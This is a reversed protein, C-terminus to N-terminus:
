RRKQQYGSEIAKQTRLMVMYGEVTTPELKSRKHKPVHVYSKSGFIKIHNLIPVRGTWLENPTKGNLACHITRNKLYTIAHLAEGWFGAPINPSILLARVGNMATRNYREAIGNQEPSYTSTLEHKIGRKKCLNKFESNIFELRNDTRVTKVTAGSQKEIKDLWEKFTEYVIKKNNIPFTFVKRTFDDVISLFYRNGGVSKVPSPGWLDM